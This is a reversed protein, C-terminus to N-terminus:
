QLVGERTPIVKSTEQFFQVAAGVGSGPVISVGSDLLAMETGALSSLCMIEDMNGLHGIRFVKGNVESLGLGLSLNYKAFANKVILNSDVGDPTEVVTLSDSFWRPDKCLTKLGWAAVARRTGEALRHHRAWANEIGEQEMLTLAERLGYLLPLVPTYPVAGSPNTALMDRFDYYVRKLQASEMAALAKPSACVFGLGTPLSLAKQSGTVAVDVRWDDMKFPLAGISSVGDILLLAPHDAADLTARIAPIDSTIGTATENHVVCVAKIEKAEDNVLIEALKEEHAGDGWPCNVVMVDLGLRQQMDVWLHSFQGYRFTVVKDGPSLTNTLAAEWGGTGTGPFIIPTGETTQFLYKTQELIGKYFTAFWPDRHNEGPVIMANRVREHINVPGPVFLHNRGPPAYSFPPDASSAPALRASATAFLQVPMKNQPVLGQLLGACAAKEAARRLAM